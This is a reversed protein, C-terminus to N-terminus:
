KTWPRPARPETQRHLDDLVLRVDVEDPLPLGRQEDARHEVEGDQHADRDESEVEADVERAAGDDLQPEVVRDVGALHPSAGLLRPEVVDADLADAARAV